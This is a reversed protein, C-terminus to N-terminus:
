PKARGEASCVSVLLDQIKAMGAPLSFAEEVRRRASEIRGRWAAPHDMADEIADALAQPDGPPVLRGHEGGALIERPGSECDAAVVPVRCAMAEVLANPMGEYVSPLCYLDASRFFVYPNPQFGEFRVHEALGRREVFARLTHELPGNGLLRVLVHARGRRHVLEDMASLLYQFGKEESLRGAAVITFRGAAAWTLESGCAEAALHDIRELDVFNYITAIRELPLGHYESVASRVGESVAVVRDAERYARRLMRTKIWAFRPANREFDLRPNTVVTSIRRVRERRAAAATLLTMHWTRDYVVDIREDRIVRALDRMEARHIRGPWNFRPLPAHDHFAFVAVDDPVDSLLEGGRTVLYLLPAFKSRDLHRLIGVTQRESGGGHLSGIAFLVRIM